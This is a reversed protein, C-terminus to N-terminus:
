RPDAQRGIIGELRAALRTRTAPWESAIISYMATDRLRGQEGPAWSRSWNRLVGEFRAGVAAIAARSRANRADTTLDVRDVQWVEFAHVFMLLKAETNFGTGQAPGALWTFGVNVASLRDGDPAPRPDWYGTAGVARGTARAIQAYPALRGSAARELQADIYPGVEDPTPVWTYGFSARGDRVAAALDAAHRHDLPELRVLAGELVPGELRFGM